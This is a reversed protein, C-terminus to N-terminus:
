WHKRRRFALLGALGAAALLLSAPEPVAKIGAASATMTKDYNTLVNSLDSINVTGDANFDGDAWIMGTKDYNTLVKSLDGINVTGDFNADGQMASLLFIQKTHAAADTGYGAIYGYNNIATACNLVFGAPLVAAFVTNLDRLGTTNDWVAAHMVGGGSDYEGAVQGADNLLSSMGTGAGVATFPTAFRLSGLDTYTGSGITYLFTKLGSNPTITGQGGGYEGVVQNAKNVAFAMSGGTDGVFQDIVTSMSTLVGGVVSYQWVVARAVPLPPPIGAGDYRAWGVAYGNNNFGAAGCSKGAYGTGTPGGLDYMTGGSYVFATQVGDSNKVYGIVEGGNSIGCAANGGTQAGPLLLETSTGGTGGSYLYGHATPYCAAAIQGADNIANGTNLGTMATSVQPGINYIMGASGGTYLFTHYGYAQGTVAGTRNVGTPVGSTYSGDLASLDTFYDAAGAQAGALLCGLLCFVRTLRNLM